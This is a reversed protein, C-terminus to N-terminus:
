GHEAAYQYLSRFPEAPGRREDGGIGVGVVNRDRHRVATDFVHQAADIGFHRVADFIWLVSVGFDREGRKRGSEIGDFLPDFDQQRWHVVGVSIYVEETMRNHIRKCEMM